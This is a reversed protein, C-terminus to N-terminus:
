AMANSDDKDKLFVHEDAVQYAAELKEVTIVSKESCQHAFGEIVQKHNAAIEKQALEPIIDEVVDTVYDRLTNHNNRSEEEFSKVKIVFELMAENVVAQQSELNQLRALIEAVVDNSTM